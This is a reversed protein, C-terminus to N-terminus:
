RPHAVLDLRRTQCFGRALRKLQRDEFSYMANPLVDYLGIARAIWEREDADWRRNEPVFHYDHWCELTDWNAPRQRRRKIIGGGTIEFM